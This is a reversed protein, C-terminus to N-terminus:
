KKIVKSNYGKVRGGQATKCISFKTNIRQWDFKRFILLVKQVHCLLTHAITHIGSIQLFFTINQLFISGMMTRMYRNAAINSILIFDKM